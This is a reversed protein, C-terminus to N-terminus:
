KFDFNSIYYNDVKYEQNFNQFEKKHAINIQQKLFMEQKLKIKNNHIEENLLRQQKYLRDLEFYLELM